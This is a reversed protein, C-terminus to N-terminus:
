IFKILQRLKVKLNTLDSDNSVIRITELKTLHKIFLDEERIQKYELKKCELNSRSKIQVPNTDVFLIIVKPKYYLPFEELKEVETIILPDNKDYIELLMNAVTTKGSGKRGVVILEM